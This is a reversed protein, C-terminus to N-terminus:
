NINRANIAWGMSVGFLWGDKDPIGYLNIPINMQGMQFSKGIAYIWASQIGLAGRSDLQRRYDQLEPFDNALQNGNVINETKTLRLVPGFGFEWGNTFRFGQVFSLSPIAMQQSLGAVSINTQLIASLLGTNLYQYENQYGIVTLYPSKGFGGESERRQFIEANRETLMSMGFRPGSLNIRRVAPGDMEAEKVKDYDYSNKLAPDVKVKFLEAVSIRILKDLKEENYAFESYTTRIIKNQNIDFLRLSLILKENILVARGSVAYDIGM